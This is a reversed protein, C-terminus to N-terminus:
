VPIIKVYEATVDTESKIINFIVAVEEKSLESDSVIVNVNNSTTGITVVVDEFGKTKILNELLLEKEMTEIIKMKQNTANVAAESEAESAAIIADLYLIEENRTTSRETRYNSFFTGTQISGDDPSNASSSTLMFNFVATIALLLIMGSLIFIKKKKSM